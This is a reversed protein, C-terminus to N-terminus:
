EHEYITKVKAKAKAKNVDSYHRRKFSAKSTTKLMKTSLLAQQM